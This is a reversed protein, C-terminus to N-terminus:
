CAAGVWASCWCSGGHADFGSVRRSCSMRAKSSRPISRGVAESLSPMETLVVLPYTLFRYRLSSTVALDLQQRHGPCRSAPRFLQSVASGDRLPRSQASPKKSM